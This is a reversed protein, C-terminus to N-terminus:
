VAAPTELPDADAEVRNRGHRKARYMARDARAIAESLEGGATWEAVGFSATLRLGRPWAAAAVEARLREAILMGEVINTSPFLLVFEEGGWRAFLDSRQISDKVLNAVQQLVQDGVAHGQQDNVQKFHDVDLFVLSMPFLQEDRAEALALLEDGLGNRNLLGTLPDQRALKEFSKSRERLAANARKLSAISRHHESLARRAQLTQWALYGLVLVLWAGIVGLRFAATGILKGRFEIRELVIRHHGPQVQGGTSVDLAVVNDFETGAHQPPLARESTWWSAVALQRLKLELPQPSQAPDYVLEQPKLTAPDGPKSYAPNFQRLFFRVQERPGPGQATVWLRVTDYRSLDLGTPPTGFTFSIECYPWAYGARIDCDLVWARGERRLTGVSTGGSSRDDLASAQYPAAADITLVSVMGFENWALVLLTLAVLGGLLWNLRRQM